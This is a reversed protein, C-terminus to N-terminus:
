TAPAVEADVPVRSRKTWENPPADGACPLDNTDLRQLELPTSLETVLGVKTTLGVACGAEQLLDLTYKTYSGFPYCMIWNTPPQENVAELLSVTQRIEERQEAPELLRLCDHSYGHGAIAMGYRALSRLQALDMYLEAAFSMVDASVYQEFLARCIDGRVRPPLVRQLLAKLFTVEPSDFRSPGAAMRYLTPRDPLAVTSRYADVLSLVDDVLRRPDGVSALIFHIMHVDLVTHEQLPRAAPSFVAAIGREELRPFVTAYHDRLGDDFTLLCANPPLVAHGQVAAVVEDPRCFTYHKALYDLQGEFRDTSLGRIEPFRTRALDRVYHYMVITLM